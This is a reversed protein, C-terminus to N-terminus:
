RLRMEALLCIFFYYVNQGSFYQLHNLMYKILPHCAYKGVQDTYIQFRNIVIKLHVYYNKNNVNFKDFIESTSPKMYKLPAKM